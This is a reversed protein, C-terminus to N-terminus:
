LSKELKLRHILEPESDIMLSVNHNCGYVYKRIEQVLGFTVRNTQLNRNVITIIQFNTKHIDFRIIKSIYRIIRQEPTLIRSFKEDRIIKNVSYNTYRLKKTIRYITSTDVEFITALHKVSESTKLNSMYLHCISEKEQDILKRKM